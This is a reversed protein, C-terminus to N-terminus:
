TGSVTLLMLGKSINLGFHVINSTIESNLFSHLKVCQFRSLNDWKATINQFLKRIFLKPKSESLVTRKFYLNVLHLIYTKTWIIAHLQISSSIDSAWTANALHKMPIQNINSCRNLEAVQSKLLLEKLLTKTTEARLRWVKPGYVYVHNICRYHFVTYQKVGM